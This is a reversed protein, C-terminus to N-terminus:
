DRFPEDPKSIRIKHDTFRNKMEPLEYKRMHCTVCKSTAVPCAAGPHTADPKASTSAVHCALCTQDYSAADRNRSQHPDHCAVCTLRRDGNEGWCRSGQLRYPQFLVTSVGSSGNLEVDWWARHCSGCFDNAVGPSLKAPNFILDRGQQELGSQMAATHSAGPGHCSECHIGATVREPTPNETLGTAHCGLCKGVEIASIPRGLGSEIDHEKAQSRGPTFDFGDTSGFYNFRSELTQGQRQYLFSQGITGFGFAWDLPANLTQGASSISLNPGSTSQTLQYTYPGVSFPKGAHNTVIASDRAPMMTRAMPTSAQEAISTHCKQCAGAGVFGQNSPLRKTPWWGPQRVREETSTQDLPLSHQQATLSSSMLFVFGVASLSRLLFGLRRRHPDRFIRPCVM